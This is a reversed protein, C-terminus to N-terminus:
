NVVFRYNKISKNKSEIKIFYLGPILPDINIEHSPNATNLLKGQLNYLSIKHYYEPNTLVIKHSLIKVDPTLNNKTSTPIGAYDLDLSTRWHNCFNDSLDIEVPITFIGPTGEKVKLTLIIEIESLSDVAFKSDTIEFYNNASQAIIHSLSKHLGRNRVKLTYTWTNNNVQLPSNTSIIELSAGGYNAHLLNMPLTSECNPIIRSAIPWFGESALGVEPTFSFIKSKSFQEGYMWDDSGGNANYLIEPPSGPLFNNSRVYEQAFTEFNEKDECIEEAYGWPYLLLNGFTHYNLANKFNHSKCFNMIAKIEPESGPSSGRYIESNGEPSSGDDDFGWQYPYNRNLDVGMTGNINKKRNKRWNGGGAPRNTQNFFYGDPNVVPVFYLQRENILCKISDNTEYSELIHYMFYILQMMGIPERAHHLATYLVEPENEEENPNDSIKVSYIPRNEYSSGISKKVTILHPYDQAMSDLTAYIEELTLYGSMSGLKFGKPVFSPTKTERNEQLLKVYDAKLNEEYYGEMDSILIKTHLLYPKIKEFTSEAIESIYGDESAYTAEHDLERFILDASFKPNIEFYLRLYNQSQGNVNLSTIFLLIPILFKHM